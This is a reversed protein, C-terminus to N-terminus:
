MLLEESFLKHNSKIRLILNRSKNFQKLLRCSLRVQLPFYILMCISFSKSYNFLNIFIEKMECERM